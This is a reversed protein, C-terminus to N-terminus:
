AETVRKGCMHEVTLKLLVTREAAQAIEKNIYDEDSTFKYSLKRSIDIVTKPDDIFDIKGFAIVSRFKYAWEGEDRIGEDYVCFSAKNCKRLSDNRHGNKGCHFYICKEESNYWHNMPMAYPYGNDGIVSLVGRKENELIETCEQSSLQQNKRQLDRFM